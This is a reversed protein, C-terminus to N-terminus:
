CKSFKARGSNKIMIVLKIVIKINNTINTTKIIIFEELVKYM